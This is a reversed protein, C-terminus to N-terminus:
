KRSRFWHEKPPQWTKLIRWADTGRATSRELLYSHGAALPLDFFAAMFDATTVVLVHTPDYADLAVQVNEPTIENFAALYWINDLKHRMEFRTFGMSEGTGGPDLVFLRTRAPVLDRADRGLERYYPKPQALDFRLMKGLAVPAVLVAVIAVAGLPGPWWWRAPLRRYLLGLGFAAFLTALLGLHMNYRWYSAARVGDNAGFVGIYTSYLFANYGVFVVAVVMALRHFSGSPRIFAWIGAAVAVTMLGFHGGKNSAILAMRKLIPWAIDFSWEHFPRYSMAAGPAMTTATFVHWVGFLAAPPLLMAPLLRLWRGFPVAPDRLAAVGLGALVVVLLVLNAQKISILLLGVLGFQWSLARARRTDGDALADLGLWGLIAAVATAAATSPDAYYTFVVKEVFTPCLLTGALVGLAAQAWPRGIASDQLGAGRVWLRVGLLGVSISVLANVVAGSSEHFQGALRHAIDAFIPWGYPYGPFSLNLEAATGVPFGNGDILHRAMPIWQSFEDWESGSRASVVVLLPLALAALRLTGKPFPRGDRKLLLVFAALALAAIGYFVGAFPAKLFVGPVTYLVVAAAWGVFLDAEGLRDRGAIAGGIAMLGLWVVIVAGLTVFQGDDRSLFVTAFDPM